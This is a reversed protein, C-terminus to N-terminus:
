ASKDGALANQDPHRSRSSERPANSRRRFQAEINESEVLQALAGQRPTHVARFITKQEELAAFRRPRIVRQARLPALVVLDPGDGM